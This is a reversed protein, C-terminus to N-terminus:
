GFVRMFNLIALADPVSLGWSSTNGNTTIGLGSNGAQAPLVSGMALAANYSALASAASSASQEASNASAAASAYAASVQNDLTSRPVLTVNGNADIGILSNNIISSIRNVGAYGIPLLPTSNNDAIVQDFTARVGNLANNLDAGTLTNGDAFATFSFNTVTM